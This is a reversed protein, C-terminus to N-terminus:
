SLIKNRVLEGLRVFPLHFIVCVIGLLGSSNSCTFPDSHSANIRSLLHLPPHALTHEVRMTTSHATVIYKWTTSEQLGV